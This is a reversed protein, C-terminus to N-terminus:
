KGRGRKARAVNDVEQSDTGGRRRGGGVATVTAPPHFPASADVVRPVAACAPLLLPTEDMIEHVRELMKYSERMKFVGGRGSKRAEGDDGAHDDSM